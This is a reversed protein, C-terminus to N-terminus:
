QQARAFEAQSSDRAQAIRADETHANVIQVPLPPNNLHTAYCEIFQNRDTGACVGAKAYVAVGTVVALGVPVLAPRSRALIAALAEVAHCLVIATTQITKRTVFGSIIERFLVLGETENAPVFQSTFM